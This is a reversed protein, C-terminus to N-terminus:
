FANSFVHCGSFDLAFFARVNLRARLASVRGFECDVRFVAGFVAALYPRNALAAVFCRGAFPKLINPSATVVVVADNRNRAPVGRHSRGLMAFRLISEIGLLCLNAPHRVAGVAAVSTGELAFYVGLVTGIM